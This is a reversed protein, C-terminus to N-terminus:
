IISGHNFSVKKAVRMWEHGIQDCLAGCNPLFAVLWTHKRSPSMIDFVQQESLDM